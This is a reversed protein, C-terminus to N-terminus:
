KELEPWRARVSKQLLAFWKGYGDASPHLMDPAYNKAEDDGFINGEAYIDVYVASHKVAEAIFLERLMRTRYTYLWAMPYPWLPADGVDGATLFAIKDSKKALASLFSDLNRDAQSLSLLRIIDNAGIQIVVLDYRESDSQAMQGSLDATVAGSKAYNDVNANLWAAIRGAVTSEPVSGVGAATSDGLVLVRKSRAPEDISFPVAVEVLPKSKQAFSYLRLSAYGFYALGVLVILLFLKMDSIM